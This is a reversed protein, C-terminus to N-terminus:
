AARDLKFETVLRDLNGALEALQRCADATQHSSDATEGAIAAMQSITQSVENSASSQEHAATAILAIMNETNHAMEVISTMATRAEAMREIGHEVASRGGEVMDVVEGTERQISEITQAIEGVSKTTREALNRVEGAVVAFGRGHEGARAAEIAANLALLNTQESIERIVTIVNNIERTREGLAAIREGAAHTSDAIRNMTQSTEDMVKGGREAGQLATRSTQAAREANESIEAITVSMEQSAAAVHQVQLSLTQANKSSDDANRNLDDTAQALTDASATVTTMVGNIARLTTNVSDAMEGLEDRSTLEIRRTLDKEAVRALVESTQRLPVSIAIVLLRGILASIAIVCLILAVIFIRVTRYLKAANQTAADAGQQHQRVNAEIVAVLNDYAPGSVNRTQLTAEDRKGEKVLQMVLESRPMYDVLAQDFKADLARTEDTSCADEVAQYSEREQRLQELQSLRTRIFREVCTDDSCVIANFEQRRADGLLARMRWLNAVSPLWSSNISATTQNIKSLGALAAVGLAASLICVTGFALMVKRAVNVRHLLNLTM